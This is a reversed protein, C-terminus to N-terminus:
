VSKACVCAHVGLLVHTFHASSLYVKLFVAKARISSGTAGLSGPENTGDGIVGWCVAAGLTGSCCSGPAMAVRGGPDTPVRLHHGPRGGRPLCIHPGTFSVHCCWWGPLSVACFHGVDAGASGGLSTRSRSDDARPMSTMKLRNM